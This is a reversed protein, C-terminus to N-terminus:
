GDGGQGERRGRARGRRLYLEGLGRAYINGHNEVNGASNPFVLGRERKPCALQWERLANVVMPAMPIERRAAESKPSGITSWADARQSVTILKRDLDVDTWTFGRIESARLGTFIM